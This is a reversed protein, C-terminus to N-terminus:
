GSFLRKYLERVAPPPLGEGLFREGVRVEFHLHMEMERDDLSEPTGSNGVFAIVQGARVVTGVRASPAISELHAYRTVVRQGTSQDTGHDVWVQRGRFRDLTAPASDQHLAEERTLPRYEMDARVVVGDRAAMVPTGKRIVACSHGPYFDVGEHVGKRYERPANPLLTDLDPTCAGMIPATFGTLDRLVADYRPGPTATAVATPTPEVHTTAQAGDGGDEDSSWTRLLASGVFLVM